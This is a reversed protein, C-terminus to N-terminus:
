HCNSVNLRIAPPLGLAKPQAYRISCSPKSKVDPLFFIAEHQRYEAMFGDNVLRGVGEASASPYHNIVHVPNGEIDVTDENHAQLSISYVLAANGRLKAALSETRTKTAEANAFFFRPLLMAAAIGLTVLILLVEAIHIGKNRKQESM